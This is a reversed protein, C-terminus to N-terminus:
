KVGVMDLAVSKLAAQRNLWGKLDSGGLINYFRDHAAILSSILVEDTSWFHNVAALTMPGIIGDADAGVVEQLEHASQHCGANVGFDFVVIDTGLPLAEGRLANWYKVNYITKAMPLSLNQMYIPTVLYANKIGLWDILTPASIGYCSGVLRGAGVEGGTWNGSDNARCSYKGEAGVTFTFCADFNGASM